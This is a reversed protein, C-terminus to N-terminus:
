PYEEWKVIEGLKTRGCASCQWSQRKHRGSWARGRKAMPHGCDPCDPRKTTVRESGADSHVM